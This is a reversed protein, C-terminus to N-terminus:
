NKWCQALINAPFHRTPRLVKVWDILRRRTCQRLWPKQSHTDREVKDITLDMVYYLQKSRKRLNKQVKSDVVNRFSDLVTQM